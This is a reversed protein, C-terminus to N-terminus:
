GFIALYAAIIGKIILTLIGAMYVAIGLPVLPWLLRKVLFKVSTNGQLAPKLVALTMLNTLLHIALGAVVMWVCTMWSIGYWLAFVVLVFSIFMSYGTAVNARRDEEPTLRM